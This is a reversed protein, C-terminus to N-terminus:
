NLVSNIAYTYSLYVGFFIAQLAIFGIYGGMYAMQKLRFSDNIWWVFWYNTLAKIVISLVFTCIMISMFSAGGAHHCYFAYIASGVSGVAREEEAILVAAQSDQQEHEKHVNKSISKNKEVRASPMMSKVFGKEYTLLEEPSGQEVMRGGDLAVINDVYPLFALQHTVLVVTQSLQRVCDYFLSKGVHADVAALPDDLLVIDAQSYVARALSIRARQGGSLNTGKEGIIANDGGPWSTVDRELCCMHLTEKYRKEDYSCLFIINERVTGSMIWPNQTALAITAGPRRQVSNPHSTSMQHLIAALFSSKGAGIPGVVATLRNKPINVDLPGLVYGERPSSSLSPPLDNGTIDADYSYIAANKFAIAVDPSMPEHIDDHQRGDEEARLLGIVRSLCPSVSFQRTVSISLKFAPQYLLNFLTLAPFIVESSLTNGMFWYGAFASAATIGPIMQNMSTFFCFTLRIWRSLWSLQTKRVETIKHIFMQELGLIKVGKVCYLFERLYRLRDDNLRM